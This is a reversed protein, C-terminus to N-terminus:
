VLHLWQGAKYLSWAAGGAWIGIICAAAAKNKPLKEGAQVKNRAEEMISAPILKKALLIGAPVLIADDLYGVVPIFDPILDIPSLAYAVTAIAVVKAVTPCKPDKYAYYLATTERKIGKAWKKVQGPMGKLSSWVRGFRSSSEQKQAESSAPLSPPLPGAPAIVCAQTQNM